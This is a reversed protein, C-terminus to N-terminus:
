YCVIFINVEAIQNASLIEHGRGDIVQWTGIVFTLGYKNNHGANMEM